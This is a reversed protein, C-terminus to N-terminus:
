DAPPSYKGQGTEEPAQLSNLCVDLLWSSGPDNSAAAALMGFIRKRM